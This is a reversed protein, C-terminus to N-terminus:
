ASFPHTRRDGTSRGSAAQQGWSLLAGSAGSEARGSMYTYAEATEILVGVKAMAQEYHTNVDYGFLKVEGQQARTLGTMIKMVSTKGAGNPGFFGYIDGRQVTMNVQHIGRLNKYTKTLNKIEVVHKM